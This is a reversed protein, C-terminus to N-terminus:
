PATSPLPSAGRWTRRARGTARTSRARGGQLDAGACFHAGEGTLVIARVDDDADARAFADVLEDCMVPTFANRRDPRDLTVVLVHDTLEYRIQAYAHDSM